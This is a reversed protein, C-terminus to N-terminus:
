IGKVWNGKNKLQPIVSTVCKIIESTFRLSGINTYQSIVMVIPRTVM